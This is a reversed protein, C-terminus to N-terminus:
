PPTPDIYPPTPPYCGVEIHHGDPDRFFLQRIGGDRIMNKRYAIGRKVLGLEVAELDDAHLALHNDRTDIPGTPDGAKQNEILHITLGYNYLWSGAFDFNPRVVERFGLVDRYFARSDALRRTMLALHNVACLPLPSTM